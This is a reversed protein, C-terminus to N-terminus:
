RNTVDRLFDSLLRACDVPREVPTWHGCRDLVKVKAGKIREAIQQAVSPPGIADEDGTVILTPCAILRLDAAQANALAECTRAFGEDDQRMHSERVFATAVPNASKTASSLGAAVVQDAVVDMGEMRALRARDRLRTRAADAPELIPGFLTLSLVAEPITAAIHQCILSGMSHGVLHAPCAGLAKAADTVAKVLLSISLTEHPLASRASGPLDPRLCRYGALTGLLPQFSNSSGGLGHVFIVPPGEGEVEAKLRATAVTSM